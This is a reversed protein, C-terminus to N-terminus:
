AVNKSQDSAEKQANFPKSIAKKKSNRVSDLIVAGIVCIILASLVTLLLIVAEPKVNFNSIDLSGIVVTFVQFLIFAALAFTVVFLLLSKMKGGSEPKSVNSNSM